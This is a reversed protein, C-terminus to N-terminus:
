ANLLNIMPLVITYNDESELIEVKKDVLLKYRTTLNKVGTGGSAELSSKLRKANSIRMENQNITLHTILPDDVRGVNHKVVNELVLQLSAPPIVLTDKDTTNDEIYFVYSDGYRQNLLYIYNKAFDLEEQLTVVDNDKSNILYRYLHALKNVYKKAETPNSDILEDLSNLNNFLFHPNVQSQLARLENSKTEAEMKLLNQQGDFYKKALLIGGLIGLSQADNTIEDGLYEIISDPVWWGWIFINGFWYLFAEMLLILFLGIFFHAYKKKSLYKPALWYVMLITTITIAIFDLIITAIIPYWGMNSVYDSAIVPTALIWFGIIVWWDTRSIDKLISM